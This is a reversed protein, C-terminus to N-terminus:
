GTEKDELRRYHWQPLDVTLLQDHTGPWCDSAHCSQLTRLWGRYLDRGAELAARELELLWVNAKKTKEVCLFAFATLGYGDSTASVLGDWYMAAQAHYHRQEITRGFAEPHGSQCTKLDALIRRTPSWIDLKGKCRIGTEEDDWVVCQELLAGDLLRQISSCALVQDALHNAETNMAPTVLEQGRALAEAKQKVTRRAEAVVYRDSYTGPELVRSHVMNGLTMADTKAPPNVLAWSYQDPSVTFEKLTSFNVADFARYTEETWSYIGPSTM